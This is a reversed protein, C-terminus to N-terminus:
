IVCHYSVKECNVIYQGISACIIGVISLSWPNDSVSSVSDSQWGSGTRLTSAM